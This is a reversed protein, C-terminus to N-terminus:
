SSNFLSNRNELIFLNQLHSDPNHAYWQGVHNSIILIIFYTIHTKDCYLVFVFGAVRRWTHDGPGCLPHFTEGTQTFNQAAREGM